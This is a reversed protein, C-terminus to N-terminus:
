PAGACRDQHGLSGLGEAHAVAGAVGAAFGSYGRLASERQALEVFQVVSGSRGRHHATIMNVERFSAPLTHQYTSRPLVGRHVSDTSPAAGTRGALPTLCVIRTQFERDLRPSDLM